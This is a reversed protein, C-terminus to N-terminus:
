RTLASVRSATAKGGISLLLQIDRGLTIAQPCDQWAESLIEQARAILTRAGIILTTLDASPDQRDLTDAAMIGLKAACDALSLVIGPMLPDWRIQSELLLDVQAQVAGALPCLLLADELLRLPKSLSEFARGPKGLLSSGPVRCDALTMDGHGLPALGAVDTRPTLTLGPTNRPVLFASYGKHTGERATIALVMFWDAYPGHTIFAKRGSILYDAGCATATTSLHKPHAGVDPESIAIACLAQGRCVSDACALAAPSYNARTLFHLVLQQSLWATALGPSHTLRTLAYAVIALAQWAHPRPPAGPNPEPHNEPFPGAGPSFAMLGHEALHQWLGHPFDTATLAQRYDLDALAAAVSRYVAHQQLDQPM